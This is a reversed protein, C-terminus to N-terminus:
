VAASPRATSSPVAPSQHTFAPWQRSGMVAAIAACAARM